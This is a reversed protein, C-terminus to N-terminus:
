CWSFGRGQPPGKGKPPPGCLPASRHRRGEQQLEQEPVSEKVAAAGDRAGQALLWPQELGLRTLSVRDGGGHGRPPSPSASVHPVPPTGPPPRPSWAELHADRLASAPCGGWVCAGRPGVSGARPVPPDWGQLFAPFFSPPFQPSSLKQTFLTAFLRSPLTRAALLHQCLCSVDAPLSIRGLGAQPAPLGGAVTVQAPSPLFVASKPSIGASGRGPLERTTSSYIPSHQRQM